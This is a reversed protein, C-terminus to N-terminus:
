TISRGAWQSNRKAERNKVSNFIKGQAALPDQVQLGSLRLTEHHLASSAWAAVCFADGPSRRFHVEAVAALSLTTGKSDCWGRM